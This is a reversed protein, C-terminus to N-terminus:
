SEYVDLSNDDYVMDIRYRKGDVVIIDGKNLSKDTSYELTSVIVGNGGAFSLVNVQYVM